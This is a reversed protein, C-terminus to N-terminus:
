SRVLKGRYTAATFTFDITFNLPSHNSERNEHLTRNYKLKGKAKTFNQYQQM